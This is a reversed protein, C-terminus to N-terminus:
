ENKKLMMWKEEPNLNEIMKKTRSWWKRSANTKENANANLMGHKKNEVFNCMNESYCNNETFNSWEDTIM